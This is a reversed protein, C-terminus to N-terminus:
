VPFPAPRQVPHAAAIATGTAPDIEVKRGLDAVWQAILPYSQDRRFLETPAFGEAQSIALAVMARFAPVDFYCTHVLEKWSLYNTILG